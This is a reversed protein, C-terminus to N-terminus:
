IDSAKRTRKYDQSRENVYDEDLEISSASTVKWGDDWKDFRKVKIIKGVKAFESPIYSTSIIMYPTGDDTKMKKEIQVQKYMTKM